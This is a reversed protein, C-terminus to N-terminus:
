HAATSKSIGVRYADMLSFGSLYKQRRAVQAVDNPKHFHARSMLVKGLL